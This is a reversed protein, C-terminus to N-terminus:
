AIAADARWREWWGRALCSELTRVKATQPPSKLTTAAEGEPMPTTQSSFKGRLQVNIGIAAHREALRRSMATERRWEERCLWKGPQVSSGDMYRRQDHDGLVRGSFM